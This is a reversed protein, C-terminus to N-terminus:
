SFKVKYKETIHNDVKRTPGGMIYSYMRAKGWSEATQNPRSGSSYYAGMGKKVVAKLAPVPIGTAKSIEKYTKVDEGYKKAFKSTWNSKKSKFSKLKPRETYKGKDYDNSSKKLNKQQKKKDKRSLGATYHKPYKGGGGIEEAHWDKLAQTNKSNTLINEDKLAQHPINKLYIYHQLVASDFNDSLSQLESETITYPLIYVNVLLGKDELFRENENLDIEQFIDKLYSLCLLMNGYNIITSEQLEDEPGTPGGEGGLEISKFVGRVDITEDYNKMDFDHDILFIHTNVGNNYSELLLPIPLQQRFIDHSRTYKSSPKVLNEVINRHSGVKSGPIVVVSKDGPDSNTIDLILDNLTEGFVEQPYPTQKQSEIKPVVVITTGKIINLQGVTDGEKVGRGSIIIRLSDPQFGNVKEYIKDKLESITHHDYIDNLTITRGDYYKVFLQM